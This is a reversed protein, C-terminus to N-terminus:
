LLGRMRAERVAETRSPVGLKGLIHNVHSKVTLETIDLHKAIEHNRLDAALLELIMRERRSLGTEDAPLELPMPHQRMFKKMKEVAVSDLTSDGRVVARIAAAVEHPESHKYKYGHAGALIGEWEYRDDDWTTFLLIKCAPHLTQLARTAHVGNMVPMKIDMVVVDPQTAAVADLAVQGNKATGVIEIGPESSLYKRWLAIALMDDDVLLVRIM